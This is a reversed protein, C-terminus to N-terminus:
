QKLTLEDNIKILEDLKQQDISIGSQYGIYNAANSKLQSILVKNQTQSM